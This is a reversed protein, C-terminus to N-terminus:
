NKTKFFRHRLFKLGLLETRISAQVRPSYIDWYTKIISNSYGLFVDELILM